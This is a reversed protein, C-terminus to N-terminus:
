GSINVEIDIHTQPDWAEFSDRFHMHLHELHLLENKVKEFFNCLEMLNERSSYIIGLKGEEAFPGDEDSHTQSLYLKM